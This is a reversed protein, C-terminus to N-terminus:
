EIAKLGDSIAVELLSPSISTEREYDAMLTPLRDLGEDNCLLLVCGGFGGGVQRGGYIGPTHRGLEVILDTESCTVRYDDKLGAHTQNLLDGLKLLERESFSPTSALLDVVEHVRVIESVVFRAYDFQSDTLLPRAADLLGPSLDRFSGIEPSAVSIKRLAETCQARRDNYASEALDHAVHSNVLALRGSQLNM